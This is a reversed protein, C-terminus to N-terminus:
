KAEDTEASTQNPMTSGSIGARQFTSRLHQSFATLRVRRDRGDTIRTASLLLQVSTLDAKDVGSCDIELQHQLRLSKRILEYVARIGAISCDAPLCLPPQSTPETEMPESKDSWYIAPALLADIGSKHLLRLLSSCLM